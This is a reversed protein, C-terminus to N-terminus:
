ASARECVECSVFWFVVRKPGREKELRWSHRDAESHASCPTQGDLPPTCWAM